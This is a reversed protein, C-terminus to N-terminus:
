KMKRECKGREREREKRRGGRRGRGGVVWVSMLWWGVNERADWSGDSKRSRGEVRGEERRRKEEEKLMSWEVRTEVEVRREDGRGDGNM